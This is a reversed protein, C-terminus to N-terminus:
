ASNPRINELNAVNPDHPDLTRMINKWETAAKSFEPSNEHKAMM